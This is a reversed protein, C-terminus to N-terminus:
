QRPPASRRARPLPQRLVATAIVAEAAAAAAAALTCHGGWVAAPQQKSSSRAKNTRLLDVGSIVSRVWPTTPATHEEEAEQQGFGGVLSFARAGVPPAWGRAAGRARALRQLLLLTSSGAQAPVMAASAPAPRHSPPASVSWWSASPGLPRALLKSDAPTPTTPQSHVSGQRCRPPWALRLAGAHRPPRRSNARSAACGRRADRRGAAARAASRPSPPPQVQLLALLLSCGGVCRAASSRGAQALAPAPATSPCPSPRHRALSAAAGCRGGAGRQARGQRCSWWQLCGKALLVPPPTPHRESAGTGARAWRAGCAAVHGAGEGERWARAGGLGGPAAGWGM